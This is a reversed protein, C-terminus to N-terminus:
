NLTNQSEEIRKELMKKKQRMLRRERAKSTHHFNKKIEQLSKKDEELQEKLKDKETQPKEQPTTNTGAEGGADKTGTSPAAIDLAKFTNVTEPEQIPVFSSDKQFQPPVLSLDDTFHVAGHEDEWKYTEGESMGPYGFLVVLIGSFIAIRINKKM